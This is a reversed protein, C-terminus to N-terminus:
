AVAKAVTRSVQVVTQKQSILLAGIALIAGVAVLTYDGLSMSLAAMLPSSGKVAVSPDTIGPLYKALSAIDSAGSILGFPDVASQAVDGIAM